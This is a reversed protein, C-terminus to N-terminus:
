FLGFLGSSSSQENAWQQQMMANYAQAMAQQNLIDAYGTNAQYGMQNINGMGSLGAGYLGTVNKLYNYYDQNAMQQAVTSANQQAAPSGAMGGAAAASNAANMAQDYQFQYGPSQEFGSGLMQNVSGPNTMLQSYQGMLAPLAAAGAQMYPQYYPLSQQGMGSLYGSSASYPNEMQSSNYWNLGTMGLYGAAMWPDM